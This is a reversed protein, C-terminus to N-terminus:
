MITPRPILPIAQPAQILSWRGSAKPFITHFEQYRTSPAEDTGTHNPSQHRGTLIDNGQVYKRVRSSDFREFPRQASRVMTKPLGVDSVTLGHALDKRLRLRIRHDMQSCLGM